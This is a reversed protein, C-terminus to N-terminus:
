IKNFKKGPSCVFRYVAKMEREWDLQSVTALGGEIVRDRLSQDRAAAIITDAVGSVTAPTLLSNQNHKLLWANSENRNTITACGSAMYELPQYSPHPTFMFVLGLDSRRYLDAVDELSPLVGLNEIVGDVGFEKPSFPAGVSIARLDDKLVSKAKRIAEIGLFFANRDNKPRGYFVLQVPGPRRDAPYYLERDVAPTFQGYRSSYRSYASAVGSTNAIGTFGFRYTQEILGFTAGASYFAPEYDQVLYYKNKCQNYKLLKYASTWLTCIGIDASPLSAVGDYDNLSLFEFELSPFAANIESTVRGEDVLDGLVCFYHRMGGLRSLADAIRFITYIGGRYVHDFSPIMWLATKPDITPSQWFRDLVAENSLLDAESADYQLLYKNNPNSLIAKSSGTFNSNKIKSKGASRQLTPERHSPASKVAEAFRQRFSALAPNQKMSLIANDIRTKTYKSRFAASGKKSLVRRREHTFSKSKAHFVYTDTTIACIFGADIARMCYDNEEGYGHPFSKEDLLGISNMVSRKIAFCFGNILPVLVAYNESLDECLQSTESVTMGDPLDNIALDGSSSLIEPVSQWSAANSAPGIIGIAEVREGCKIINDLWKGPLITDSNLLVVYDAGSARMGINASKTYGRTEDNRIHIDIPSTSMYQAIVKQTPADSGDDVIIARAGPRRSAAFSTLCAEVDDPSNHVCIVVDVTKDKPEIPQQQHRLPDVQLNRGHECSSKLAAASPEYTRADKNHLLRTFRYDNRVSMGRDAIPDVQGDVSWLVYNLSLQDRRSGSEIESWWAASIRRVEPEHHRRILVNTEILGANQPFGAEKYRKMQDRIPGAGDLNRKIVEEAELYICNRHPHLFASFSSQDLTGEITPALLANIVLNADIWVSIDYDPLYIHPHTKVFRAIRTPDTNFYDVRRVQWVGPNRIDTDSFCIYDCDPDIREPHKIDDYGGTIATYIAYRRRRVTPLNGGKSSRATTIPNTARVEASALHSPQDLPRRGLSRGESKGHLVYHVLPSFEEADLDANAAMYEHPSFESNPSRGEGEGHLIYHLLPNTESPNVDSNAAIYYDRNFLKSARLIRYNRFCVLGDKPNLSIRKVLTGFFIARQKFRRLLRGILRVPMSVKWSNSKKIETLMAHVRDADHIRRAVEMKARRVKEKQNELERQAASLSLSLRSRERDRVILAKELLNIQDTNSAVRAIAKDLESKKQNRERFYRDREERYSKTDRELKAQEGRQVKLDHTLQDKVNSVAALEESRYRENEKAKSLEAEFQEKVKSLEAESQKRLGDFKEEVERMARQQRLMEDGKAVLTHKDEARLALVDLLKANEDRLSRRLSEVVQERELESARREDAQIRSAERERDLEERLFNLSDSVAASPESAFQRELDQLIMSNLGGTDPIEGHSPFKGSRAAEWLAVQSETLIALYDSDATEHKLGSEIFSSVTNKNQDRLGDVGYKALGERLRDISREPADVLDNYTVFVVQEGHLAAAASRTYREWLALGEALGIGNRTRLSLAVELPHRVVHVFVTRPLFPKLLPLLICFRPEKVVAVSGGELLRALVRAFENLLKRKELAPIRNPHFTSVRWWDAGDSHLLADCIKRLDRREFFGSSNEVSAGTLESDDGTNAGLKNLLGTVASTGSRHMGVVMILTPTVESDDANLKRSM